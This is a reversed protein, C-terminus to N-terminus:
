KLNNYFNGHELPLKKGNMQFALLCDGNLALDINISREYYHLCNKQVGQDKGTFV